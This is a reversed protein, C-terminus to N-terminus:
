QSRNTDATIMVCTSSLVKFDNKPELVWIEGEFIQFSIAPTIM